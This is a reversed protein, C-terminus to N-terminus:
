LDKGRKAGQDELWNILVNLQDLYAKDYNNPASINKYVRDLLTLHNRDKKNILKFLEPQHEKIIQLIEIRAYLVAFRIHQEKVEIIKNSIDSRYQDSFGGFIVDREYTKNAEIQSPKLTGFKSHKSQFFQPRKYLDPHIPNRNWLATRDQAKKRNSNILNEYDGSYEQLETTGRLMISGADGITLVEDKHMIIGLGHEDDWSCGCELCYVCLGEKCRLSISVNGVGMVKGLDEVKELPPFWIQHDRDNPDYGYCEKLKIYYKQISSLISKKILDGNNSIWNITDIQIPLPEFDASLESDIHLAVTGDSLQRSDLSTYPGNRSQLGKFADFQYSINEWKGEFTFNDM